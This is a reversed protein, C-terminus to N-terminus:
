EEDESEPANDRWHDVYRSHIEEQRGHIRSQVIERVQETDPLLYGFDTERESVEELTKRISDDIYEVSILYISAAFMGVVWLIMFVVRDSDTILRILIMLVTFVILFLLGIRIRKKNSEHLATGRELLRNYLEEYRLDQKNRDM